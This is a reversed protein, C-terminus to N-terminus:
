QTKAKIRGDRVTIDLLDGAQTDAPSTILKGESDRVLSFGRELTKLPNRIELKSEILEVLSNFESVRAKAREYMTQELYELQRPIPSLKREAAHSLATQLGALIQIRKENQLRPHRGRIEYALEILKANGRELRDRVGDHLAYELEDIQQAFPELLSKPSGLDSREYFSLQLRAHQVVQRARVALSQERADLRRLIDQRDPTTMMAAASPTPARLDATFDAITFDTEHGVGSVVPLPCAAIARAVIEENFAWLDEISGGGRAIILTDIPPLGNAEADSWARIAKAIQPAAGDGQVLVPLLYVRVWPAREEFVHRMDQIAAGTPSTILGIAQPFSPIPQKAVPDFLGESELKEKLALFRAQLDGMGAAEIRSLVLQVQGRQEYVTAEGYARVKIGEKLHVRCGAARQKFLVSAIQAGADKLTFYAHGSSQIRLNSIEGEVWQHGVSIRVANKIREVLQTVTLARTDPASDFLM